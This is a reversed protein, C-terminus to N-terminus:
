HHPSTGVAHARNSTRDLLRPWRSAQHRQGDGRRRGAGLRYVSADSDNPTPQDLVRCLDIFHEQAAARENVAGAIARKWKAQFEHIHM